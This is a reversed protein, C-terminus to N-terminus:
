PVPRGVEARLDRIRTRRAVALVQERTSWSRGDSGDSFLVVLFRGPHDHRSALAVFLADRMPRLGRQSPVSDLWQRFDIAEGGASEQVRIASTFPVVQVHDRDTFAARLADGANSLVPLQPGRRRTVSALVCAVDLQVPETSVSDIVQVAGNDKVEFNGATLGRLPAGDKTVLVDVTVADARAKFSPRPVPPQDQAAILLPLVVLALSLNLRQREWNM